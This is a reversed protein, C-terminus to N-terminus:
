IAHNMETNQSVINQLHEIEKQPLSCARGGPPISSIVRKKAILGIVMAMSECGVIIDAESIEEILTQNGDSVVILDSYDRTWDYKDRKESPHPRITIKHVPYELLGRNKLFFNLAEEETYGWYREDGHQLLAHARIPECVYLISKQHLSNILPKAKKIELVIDEFYPNSLRVLHASPFINRAIREAIEDGVWIEDPLILEGNNLFRERYNVWHDLFAIVRKGSSKCLRIARSELDSQWSTGCLVWDSQQIALELPLNIQCDLKKRFIEIAPGELVLCYNKNQHSAWSSLIEAGGADHSVIAINM